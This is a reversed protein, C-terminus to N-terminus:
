HVHVVSDLRLIAQGHGLKPVQPIVFAVQEFLVSTFSTRMQEGRVATAPMSVSHGEQAFSM